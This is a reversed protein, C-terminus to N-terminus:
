PSCCKMVCEDHSTRGNQRRRRSRSGTRPPIRATSSVTEWALSPMPRRAAGINRPAPCSRCSDPRRTSPASRPRGPTASTTPVRDAAPSPRRRPGGCRRGCERAAPRERFTACRAPARASPGARPDRSRRRRPQCRRHDLPATGSRGRVGRAATRARRATNGSHARSRPSAGPIPRRSRSCTPATPRAGRATPWRCSPGARRGSQQSERGGPWSDRRAAAGTRRQSGQGRQRAAAPGDLDLVAVELGFEAEIRELPAAIGALVM